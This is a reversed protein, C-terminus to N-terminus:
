VWDLIQARRYSPFDGLEGLCAALQEQTLGLLSPKEEM